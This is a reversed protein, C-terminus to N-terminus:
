SGFRILSSLKKKRVAYVKPEGLVVANSFRRLQTKPNPMMQSLGLMVYRVLGMYSFLCYVQLNAKLNRTKTFHIHDTSLHRKHLNEHNLWEIVVRPYQGTLDMHM